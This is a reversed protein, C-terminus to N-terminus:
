CDAGGVPSVRVDGGGAQQHSVRNDGPRRTPGPGLGPRGPRRGRCGPPPARSLAAGAPHASYLRGRSTAPTVDARGKWVANTSTSTQRERLDALHPLEDQSATAEVAAFAEVTARQLIMAEEIADERPDPGRLGVKRALWPLTLGQLLLTGVTVALATLVLVDRAPVGDPLSLAAALTVVGRMGAWGIVLAGALSPAEARRLTVSYTILVVVLRVVIVTVVTAVCTATIVGWGYGSAAADSWISRAQLGILLFVANELLFQITRWNVRGAVRDEPGQEVQSRHGLVLGTVVALVGLFAGM